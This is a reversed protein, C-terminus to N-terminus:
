KNNYNNIIINEKAIIRVMLAGRECRNRNKKLPIGEGM